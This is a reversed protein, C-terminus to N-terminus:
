HAHPVSNEAFYHDIAAFAHQAGKIIEDGTGTSEAYKTLASLFGKWRVGTDAGYGSFFSGGKQEEIGLKSQIHKLIVRGGLTSGEIVYMYGLAFPVSFSKDVPYFLKMDAGGIFNLAHLDAHIQPLKHRQDLDPIIDMLAPFVVKESFSIVESMLSLYRMYIASTIEPSMLSASVPNAELATHMPGTAARLQKLFKDGPSETQTPDITQQM